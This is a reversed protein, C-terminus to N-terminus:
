CVYSKYARKYYSKTLLVTQNLTGVATTTNTEPDIRSLSALYSSNLKAEITTLDMLSAGASSCQSQWWSIGTKLEKPRCYEKAAAYISAVENTTNCQTTTSSGRHGRRILKHGGHGSSSGGHATNGGSSDSGTSSSGSNSSSSSSSSSNSGTDSTAASPDYWTYSTIVSYVTYMCYESWEPVSMSAGEPGGRGASVLLALVPWLFAINRLPRMRGAARTSLFLAHRRVTM